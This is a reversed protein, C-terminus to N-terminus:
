EPLCAHQCALWERAAVGRTIVFLLHVGAESVALRWCQLQRLFQSRHHFILAEGIVPDGQHGERRLRAYCGRCRGKLSSGRNQILHHKAGWEKM